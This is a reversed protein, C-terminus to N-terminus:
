KLERSPHLRARMRHGYLTALPRERLGLKGLEDAREHDGLSFSARQRLPTLAFEGGLAVRSGLLRGDMRTFSRMTAGRESTEAKRMDLSVVREGDISVITRRREGRDHIEIDAVEKPYGWIERGLAVSAETTVPLYSVYGGVSGAVLGGVLQAGPLDTRSDAVVPVIVAFEDYPDLGGVYHYEISALTVAGTRPAIRVPSLRDPLGASLRRASAPFVGGTLTFECELPLEVTQGTSLRRQHGASPQRQRGTPPRREGDDPASGDDPVM